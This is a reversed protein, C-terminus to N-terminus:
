DEEKETKKRKSGRKPKEEEDSKNVEFALDEDDKVEVDFSDYVITSTGSLNTKTFQAKRLVRGQIAARTRENDPLFFPHGYTYTVGDHKYRGRPSILTVQIQNEKSM